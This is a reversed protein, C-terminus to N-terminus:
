GKLNGQAFVKSKSKWREGTRKETRTSKLTKQGITDWVPYEVARFAIFQQFKLIQKHDDAFLSTSHFVRGEPAAKM